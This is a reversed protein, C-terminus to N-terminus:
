GQAAVAQVVLDITVKRGVLVGGSELAANWTLGWDERDIEASASFSIRTGGWPDAVAGDFELDFTVPRTVGRVTLDGTLRWARDGPEIATSRFSLTPYRDVALFDEGRLHQDRREDHTELSDAEVTVEVSSDTPQDAVVISGDFRTFRGRVKTVVLHRGVFEVMSHARDIAYSGALPVAQGDVIRTGHTATLSTSMQREKDTSSKLQM